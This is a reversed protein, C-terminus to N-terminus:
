EYCQVMCKLVGPKRSSATQIAEVTDELKFKNTVLPKVNVRGSAVLNIAIPFCFRDYRWAPRIEIQRQAIVAIPLTVDTDGYGVFVVCGAPITAMVSLKQCFTNGSCEITIDPMEGMVTHIKNVTDDIDKSSTLLTHTAGLEKALKLREEVIDTICINTAGMAKAVMMCLLGISGSGLILVSKGAEVRARRCDQVAVALPEMFAGEEDSVNDPIKHCNSAKVVKFRTIYGNDNAGEYPKVTLCMNQIGRLCNKCEGCFEGPELVIRDGVKVNNVNQGVQTIVASAEHGIICPGHLQNTGHTGNAYLYVDSGCIGVQRISVQVENEGPTLLPALEIQIDNKDYLVAALNEM